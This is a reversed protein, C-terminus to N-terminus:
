PVGHAVLVIMIMIGRVRRLGEGKNETWVADFPGARGRWNDKIVRPYGSEARM